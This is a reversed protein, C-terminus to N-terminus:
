WSWGAAVAMGLVLRGPQPIQREGPWGSRDCLRWDGHRFTMDSVVPLLARYFEELSTDIGENPYRGLFM